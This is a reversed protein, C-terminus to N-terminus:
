YFGARTAFIHEPAPLGFKAQKLCSVSHVIATELAEKADLEPLLSKLRAALM